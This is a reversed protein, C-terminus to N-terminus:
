LARGVLVIGFVILGFWAAARLQPKPDFGKNDFLYSYILFLACVAVIFYIQWM